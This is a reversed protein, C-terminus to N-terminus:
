KGIWRLEPRPMTLEYPVRERFEGYQNGLVLRKIKRALSNLHEWYEWQLIM